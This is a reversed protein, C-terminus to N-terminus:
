AELMDNVWSYAAMAAPFGLTTIALLVVQRIDADVIGEEQAQRAHSHVAGESGAGVALALKLLRRTRADLTGADAVSKGLAAYNEWVDPYDNALRGAGSPPLKTM